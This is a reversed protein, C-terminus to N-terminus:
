RSCWSRSRPHRAASRSIRSVTPVPRHGLKSTRQGRATLRGDGAEGAASWPRSSRRVSIPRPQDVREAVAGAGPDNASRDQALRGSPDKREQDAPPVAPPPRPGWGRHGPRTRRPPTRDQRAPPPWRAPRSWWGRRGLLRRVPGRETVLGSAPTLGGWHAHVVLRLHGSCDSGPCGARCRRRRSGRPAGISTDAPRSPTWASSAPWSSPGPIGGSRRLGTKWRYRRRSRGVLRGAPPRPGPSYM